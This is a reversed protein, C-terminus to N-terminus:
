VRLGIGQVLHCSAVFFSAFVGLRNGLDTALSDQRVIRLDVNQTHPVFRDVKAHSWLSTIGGALNRNGLNGGRKALGFATKTGSRSRTQAPKTRPECWLFCQDTM